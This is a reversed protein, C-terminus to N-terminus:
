DLKQRFAKLLFINFGNDTALTRSEARIDPRAGIGGAARVRIVIDSVQGFWLSQATAEIRGDKESSDVVQWGLKKATEFCRWFLTSVPSASNPMLKFQPKTLLNNKYAHLAYSVTVDEGQYRIKQQPDFVPSNMGPQRLKALAVFQPADDPDTAADHIPPMTFGYYLTSLPPFLFALSGLLAVLGMRKGTGTNSAIAARLWALAAILAALGLVTAPIMVKMGTDYPFAGGRVGAIAAAAMLLALVLAALALRAALLQSRM